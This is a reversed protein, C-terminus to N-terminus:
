TWYTSSPPPTSKWLDLRQRIPIDPPKNFQGTESYHYADQITIVTDANLDAPWADLDVGPDGGGPEGYCNDYPNTPLSEEITNTFGDDDWDDDCVDGLGDGIPTGNYKAGAAGLEEDTNKQDPNYDNPCNDEANPVDDDDCDNCYHVTMKVYDLFFGGTGGPDKVEVGFNADNIQGQTWSVGWLDTPGGATQHSYSDAPLTVTAEDGVPTQTEDVLRLEPQDATSGGNYGGLNVEIGKIGAAAPITFGFTIYEGAQGPWVTACKGPDCDGEEAEAWDANDFENDGEATPYNWGQSQSDGLVPPAGSSTLALAVILALGTAGLVTYRVSCKKPHSM